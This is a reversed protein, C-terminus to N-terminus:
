DHVFLLQWVIRRAALLGGQRVTILRPQGHRTALKRNDIGSRQLMRILDEDVPKLHECVM